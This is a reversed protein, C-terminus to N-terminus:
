KSGCGLRRWFLGAGKKTRLHVTLAPGLVRERWSHNLDRCHREITEASLHAAVDAKIRELADLVNPVM